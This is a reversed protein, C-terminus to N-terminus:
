KRRKDYKKMNINQEHSVDYAVPQDGKGFLWNAMRQNQTSVQGQRGCDGLNVNDYGHSEVLATHGEIQNIINYQEKMQDSTCNSEWNTGGTFDFFPNMKCGSLLVASALVIIIKM